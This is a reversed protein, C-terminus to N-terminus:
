ARALGARAAVQADDISLVEGHLEPTAAVWAILAAPEAPARLTGQEQFGRFRALNDAGFHAEDTGRLEAQMATDVVGPYVVNARVGTGRLEEALVRTFHDVGAKSACYAGMSAIPSRAAGTSVTVISGSGRRLLAPLAARCVNFAGVLNAAINREWATPDVEWTRGIPAVVGAATVVVDLRGWRALLQDVAREVDAYRAVDGVVALGETGWEEAADAVARVEDVTRAFAAVRAGDRALTECVARGVGRGGGTVLAVQGAFRGATM